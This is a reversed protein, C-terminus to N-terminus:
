DNAGSMMVSQQEYQQPRLCWSLVHSPFMELNVDDVEEGENKEEEEEGKSHDESTDQFTDSSEQKTVIMEKESALRNVFDQFENSLSKRREYDSVDDEQYYWISVTLTKSVKLDVLAALVEQCSAMMKLLNRRNKKDEDLRRRMNLSLGFTRLECGCKIFYQITHAVSEAPMWEYCYKEEVELELHKMYKLNVDPFGIKPDVKDHCITTWCSYLFFNEGYLVPM